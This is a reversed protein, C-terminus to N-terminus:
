GVVPAPFSRKGAPAFPAAAVVQSLHYTAVGPIDRRLEPDLSVLVTRRGARQLRLLAALLAEPVVATVVVMTAGWPARRSERLLLREVPVAVFAGVGALAELIKAEAGPHRTPAVRVVRGAGALSANTALGVPLGRDLAHHAISGAVQVLQEQVDPNVGIWALDYTAVNLVVVVTEQSVPEVVRVQLRGLRATANWDIMRRSDEPGYERTGVPRMPDRELSRVSARQGFPADPPFGLQALPVVRPYVVLRAPSATQQRPRYLGFPDGSEMVLPGFDFIGRSPCSASYRWTLREYPGM